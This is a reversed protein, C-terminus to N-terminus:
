EDTQGAEFERAIPDDKAQRQSAEVMELLKGMRDSARERTERAHERDEEEAEVFGRLTEADDQSKATMNSDPLTMGYKSMLDIMPKLLPHQEVKQIIIQEGDEGRYEALHFGGDKDYYWEPTSWEVGRSAISVMIDSLIAHVNAHYEAQLGALMRADQTEFAIQVQMFRETRKLCAPPNKHGPTLFAPENCGNNLWECSSCIPYQGPKAPWYMATKAHLGHKMANFRTRQAEQPTPHGVLNQGTAVKGEDSTPGTARGHAARLNRSWAAESVERECEPCDAFYDHPDWTLIPNDVVRGPVAEFRLRCTKCYFSVQKDNEPM